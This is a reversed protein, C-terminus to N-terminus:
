PDDLPVSHTLPPSYGDNRQASSAPLTTGLHAAKQVFKITNFLGTGAQYDKESLPNGHNENLQNLPL